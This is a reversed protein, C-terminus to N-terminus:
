KRQQNQIWRLLKEELASPSEPKERKFMQVGHGANPPEIFVANLTSSPHLAHIVSQLALVSQYAYRDTPSAAMALPRNGFQAIVDNTTIGQYDIGPSLLIAFPVEPHLVAYRLVINAGISAGCLAVSKPDIRYKDRLFNVASDLDEMMRGWDSQVGRGFFLQYDVPEGSVKKKSEGHGRADYALVGYGKSSLVQSFQRWEEKVSGLGHLFIITVKQPSSPKLFEGVIQIQDSTQFVIKEGWVSYPFLILGSLFIWKYM